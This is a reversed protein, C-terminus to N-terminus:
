EEQYIICLVFFNISNGSSTNNKYQINNSMRTWRCINSACKNPHVQLYSPGIQLHSVDHYIRQISFTVLSVIGREYHWLYFITIDRHRPRATVWKRIIVAVAAAVFISLFFIRTLTLWRWCFGVEIERSEYTIVLSVMRRPYGYLYSIKM